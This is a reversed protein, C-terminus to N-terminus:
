LKCTKARCLLIREDRLARLFEKEFPTLTLAATVEEPLEVGHLVVKMHLTRLRTREQKLIEDLQM